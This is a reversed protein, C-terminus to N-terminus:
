ETLWTKAFAMQLANKCHVAELTDAIHYGMIEHSYADTVLSLYLHQRGCPVYTIDSAWLQEPLQPYWGKILNSYKKLWHHSHTTFIRRKRRKILLRHDNLTSFLADRGMKISHKQYFSQLLKHLKRTGIAPHERRINKVESLVLQEKSSRRKSSWTNKYLSQRTCGLLWCFWELCVCPYSDKM